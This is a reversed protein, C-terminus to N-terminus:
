LTSADFDFVSGNITANGDKWGEQWARSKNKNFPIGNGAAWVGEHYEFNWNDMSKVKNM